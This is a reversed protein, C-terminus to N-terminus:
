CCQTVCDICQLAWAARLVELVSSLLSSSSEVGQLVFNLGESTNTDARKAIRELDRKLSVATGTLGIQVKAV